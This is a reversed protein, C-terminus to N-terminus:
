EDLRLDKTLQENYEKNTINYYDELKKKRKRALLVTAFAIDIAILLIITTNSM